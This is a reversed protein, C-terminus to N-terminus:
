SWSHLPFTIPAWIEVQFCHSWFSIQKSFELPLYKKNLSATWHIYRNSLNELTIPTTDGAM